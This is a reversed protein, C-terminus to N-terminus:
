KVQKYRKVIAPNLGTFMVAPPKLSQGGTKKTVEDITMTTPENSVTPDIEIEEQQPVDLKIPSFGTFCTQCTKEDLLEKHRLAYKAIFFQWPESFFFCFLVYKCTCISPLLNTICYNTLM